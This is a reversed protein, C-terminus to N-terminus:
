LFNFVYVSTNKPVRMELLRDKVVSEAATINYLGPERYLIVGDENLDKGALQVDKPKKGDITVTIKDQPNSAIIVFTKQSTFKMRLVADDGAIARWEKITWTGGLSWESSKLEDVLKFAVPTDNIRSKDNVFNQLRGYGVYSEETVGTNRVEDKQEVPDINALSKGNAQLMQRILLEDKVFNNSTFDTHRIMGNQDIFYLAPWNQNDYDLWLEFNNEIAVPYTIQSANVCKQINEVKKEFDFEADHVGVIVLGQDRYRDWWKSLHPQMLMTEIRSYTWFNLLVVKGKLDGISLKKSNIWTMGDRFEPAKVPEGVNYAIDKEVNTKKPSRGFAYTLGVVLVTVLIVIIIPKKVHKQISEATLSPM